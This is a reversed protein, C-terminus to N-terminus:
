DKLTKDIGYVNNNRNIDMMRISPDIEVRVVKDISAPINFSYEPHTWPWDELVTQKMAKSEQFKSGRMIRLPINFLEQTGDEYTVVVDVPMPMTGNNMLMVKTGKGDMGQIDKIAYDITDTTNVWYERYWDLELGSQKEMVRIFDNPNPHKFKWTEFYNLMGKDFADQGIIYSLQNLFISGKTYAGVGYAANTKFHDAHISLPEARGSRSFNAFGAYTRAHPNESAQGPLLGKKRLYNMTETSGYSTFGEDMWAYLAENTGLIMQYWSHFWEHVSVGVLSGLSREGTILTAMPYEMGGDGGQIFSYVPYPYKGFRANMFQVAEDMIAPLKEWVEKTRDNEQYLFHMMTGDGAKLKTHKYDPDAAWVFDHINKGVFHWTLKKGRRKVKEDGDQYGYGIKNANQLEGTAGLIYKKDITIKVDFDGWIGYFERGIYPNAHWGQYDYESMKPYWQAMSYDIGEKNNRGSRRIQVPVQGKFEMEFTTTEGPQIPENLTVELITGVEEFQIAKGDRKLSTARLYGIEEPKLTSIRGGVRPDSDPLMRSRVDMMSGPQFANFYLHYFVKNLKDPSNNTYVLKQKGDFQHKKVDFDIEMEYLAKQQWRDPQAWLSITLFTFLLPLFSFKIFHM